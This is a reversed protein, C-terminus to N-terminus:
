TFKNQNFEAIKNNLANKHNQTQLLIRGALELFGLDDTKVLQDLRSELASNEMDRAVYLAKIKPLTHSTVLESNIKIGSVVTNIALPNFNRGLMFKDPSKSIIDSMKRLYEAHQLEQTCITGWFNEDEPWTNSCAAYFAGMALELNVLMKIIDQFNVSNVKHM